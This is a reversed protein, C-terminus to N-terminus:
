SRIRPSSCTHCAVSLLDKCACEVRWQFESLPIPSSANMEIRIEEKLSHEMRKHSGTLGSRVSIRLVSDEYVAPQYPRRSSCCSSTPARLGAM